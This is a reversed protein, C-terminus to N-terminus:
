GERGGGADKEKSSEGELVQNSLKTQRPTTGVSPVGLGLFLKKYRVVGVGKKEVGFDFNGRGVVVISGRPEVRDVRTGGRKSIAFHGELEL